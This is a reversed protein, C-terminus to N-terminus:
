DNPSGEGSRMHCAVLREGSVLRPPPINECRAIREPCRAYFPCGTPLRSLNPPHGSLPRVETLSGHLPPIAGILGQAYPHWPSGIVAEVPGEEVLRGAYMIGVRDVVQSVVSIDHTIFLFSIRGERKIRGLIRLVAAQSLVDLATTPEDLVILEPDLLLAIAITVRQRMGGSLEHPYANMIREADLSMEAFLNRARERLDPRRPDFGHAKGIDDIQQRIRRLPNLSSQNGQFVMAIKPGFARRQDEADLDLFNVGHGYLVEGAVIQGPRPVSDFLAYGLTSKGSGSEGVIGLSQGRPIAFSVDHVARVAGRAQPFIVELHNVVITNPSQSAVEDRAIQTIM